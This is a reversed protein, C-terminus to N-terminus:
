FRLEVGLNVMDARNVETGYYEYRSDNYYYSNAYVYASYVLSLSAHRGLDVGLGAGAYGGDVREGHGGNTKASWYGLRAVAFMPSDGFNFRATGGVSVFEVDDVFIDDSGTRELHGGAVEVGVLTVSGARWRYGASAGWMDQDVDDYIWGKGGQVGVFAGSQIREVKRPRVAAPAPKPAPAADTQGDIQVVPPAAQTGNANTPQAPPPPQQQQAKQQRRYADWAPSISQASAQAALGLATCALLLTATKKM